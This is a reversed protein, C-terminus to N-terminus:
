GGSGFVRSTEGIRLLLGAFYFVMPGTVGYLVDAGIELFLLTGLAVGCSVKLARWERSSPQRLSWILAWLLPGVILAFGVPGTQYLIGLYGNDPFSREEPSDALKRAQGVAGIGVGVPQRIAIPLITSTTALRSQTSTDQGLDTLTSAREVVQAGITSRPGLVFVLAFVLSALLLVRPLYRGRGIAATLLMAVLLALWASRVFTVAMCALGLGAVILVYPTPRRAALCLAMLVALVAGLTGPANLTSFARFNGAQKSGFEV